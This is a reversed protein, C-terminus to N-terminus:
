EPIHWHAGIKFANTFRKEKNILNSISGVHGYGLRKAAEGVSLTNQKLKNIRERESLYNEVSSKPVWWRGNYKITNLFTKNRILSTVALEDIILVTQIDKVNM